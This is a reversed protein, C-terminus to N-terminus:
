IKIDSQLRADKSIVFFSSPRYFFSVILAMNEFIICIPVVSYTYIILLSKKRLSWKLDVVNRYFGLIYVTSFIAYFGMLNLFMAKYSGIFLSSEGIFIASFICLVALVINARWLLMTSLLLSRHMLKIRRDFILNRLGHIWRIRQRLQDRLTLAAIERVVGSIWAFRVREAYAFYAFYADEALSSRAGNDFGLRQELLAPLVFYSGHFGFFPAILVKLQFRYVGLDSATRSMDIISCLLNRKFSRSNYHIEGQGISEAGQYKKIHESIGAVASDTLVSEEDMHLIWESNLSKSRLARCEVAYQLARGKHLTGQKTTYFSPVSYLIIGHINKYFSAVEAPSQNDLVVELQYSVQLLDLVKKTNLVSSLLTDKNFGKSVYCVTLIQDNPWGDINYAEIAKNNELDPSGLYIWSFINIISYLSGGVLISYFIYSYIGFNEAQFYFILCLSICLAPGFLACLWYGFSGSRLDIRHKVPEVIVHSQLM